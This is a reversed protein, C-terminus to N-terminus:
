SGTSVPLHRALHGVTLTTGGTAETVAATVLTTGSRNFGNVFIVRVVIDIGQTKSL